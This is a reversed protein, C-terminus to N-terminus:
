AGGKALSVLRKMAQHLRSKVTGRPVDLIAAVEDEGLDHYYRLIVASRQGEPLAALLRRADIGADSPAPSTLTVTSPDVPEPPPRRHWDRCLNLAIQFLWTSFRRAPDFRGAARVVRLWTEQYLDDVDRGGTHRYLFRHLPQEWRRCLHELAQADGEALRRMLAEDSRDDDM